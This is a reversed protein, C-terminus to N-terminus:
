GAALLDAIFESAFELGDPAITHGAGREVHYSVAFGQEHLVAAASEGLAPDVVQDLDGHVLCIPPKPALGGAFNKPAILAGSFGIVGLLAPELTLGVHLAMMAGQSFGALITDKASLGTQQWLDALFGAIVPQAAAAGDFRYEPRGHDIPFWQFGTPNDRCPEPANPALFIRTPCCIGGIAQL